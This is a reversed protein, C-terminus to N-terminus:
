LKDRSLYNNVLEITETSKNRWSLLNDVNFNIIPIDTFKSLKNILDLPEALYLETWFLNCIKVDEIPLFNIYNSRVTTCFNKFETANIKTFNGFYKLLFCASIDPINNDKFTINIVKSFHNKLEKVNAHISIFYPPYREEFNQLFDFSKLYELKADLSVSLGAGFKPVEVYRDTHMGGYQTFEVKQQNNYKALTLWTSLFNGGSGNIFNIPIIDEM